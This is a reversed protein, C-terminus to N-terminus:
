PSGIDFARRPHTIHVVHLGRASIAEIAEAGAALTVDVRVNHRLRDRFDPAAFSAREAETLERYETEFGALRADIERDFGELMYCNMTDPSRKWQVYFFM